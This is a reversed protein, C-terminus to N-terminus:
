NRLLVSNPDHLPKKEHKLLYKRGEVEVFLDDKDVDNRVYAMCINKKYCFSYNSSTTNGVLKNKSFIPEDHLLLPEGPKFKEKLSFLDLQRKLPKKIITEIKNRGIFNSTKKLNVAFSLGAEIPNTEPTIDHGWHLFKKELRLIDLTHMGSYCLKFKKGFNYIKNFIVKSKKIPIYIEWGLEGVFSLRQFWIKTKFINIHKGRAFPFQENSFYNGFLKTLFDRSNPGFIGICSFKETVDKFIIEKNINKLIHSKNHSRAFAPCIVRFYNEKLCSITVDAEIGGSQNLMQTYTTKGQINKVNNACLYQLQEHANIGYVDFKVFPTLDFFGLNNRTNLCENKSSNYWNQYGYSYKYIPKQNKTFWMPREYGAIQGFCAGLKKLQKHYPLLKINRSTELQKYPWHMKFLNGLTETTRKQIFKLSSNFKEFRKIDLSFLDQNNHGRIMLEALAKGAGGGSGIGISNFGCCVYFNKIEATEGLLFNSDPTFSEPGSFYKEIKLDKINPIRKSALSHLMKTYKEDVKFEGFSFDNPVVGKKKFANKANPEFIGIMIKKHYERIYLYTDPDRFTPLVKPLNKYNETIMYFHENPYLPVSVGAAEGIQRSWMGACLVIYECNITGLNTKVGRIQNERKLIKQLKCKEFIKVGEKKAAAAIVKTLIEPDAQGDKPIYLGGLVDKNKAIPYLDKFRKKNILEIDLDFLKSTSLQRLYEQYRSKSTAINLTGTHRFSTDQGTINKLDEYFKVSNKRINTIQPTTGLQTVMGAAHWTTGSTLIDREILVTNWGSKALHYATSCGAIGGGIVVVKAEHPLSIM